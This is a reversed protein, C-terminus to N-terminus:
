RSLELLSPSLKKMSMTLSSILFEDVEDDKMQKWCKKHYKRTEWDGHSRKGNARERGISVLPKDCYECKKNPM